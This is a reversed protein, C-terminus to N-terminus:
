GSLAAFLDRLEDDVDRPDALTRAIEDRLLERYKERMRHVAVKVAGESMGLEAATRAYPISDEAGSLYAKLREFHEEKGARAFDERLRILVQELLTLAWRRM